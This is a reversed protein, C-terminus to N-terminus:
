ENAPAPVDQGCAGRRGDLTAIQKEVEAMEPSQPPLVSLLKNWLRKAQLPHCTEAEARGLYFLAMPNVPDLAIVQRVTVIFDAPLKGDNSRGLQIQALALRPEVGKPSLQIAHNAADVAKTFEGLVRYSRALRLWGAEDDPHERLRAALGDVMAHIARNQEESGQAALKAAESDPDPPSILPPSPVISTSDFGGVKAQREIDARLHPLWPAGAPSTQELDRWIAVAQASRGIEAEALGLYYRSRFETPDATLARMFCQRAEPVVMGDNAMVISEGFEAWLSGDAAGMRIAQRYADAAQDFHRMAVYLQALAVFGESDPKVKLEAALTAANSALQLAPDDKRAAYPQGKLEPAGLQRYLAASGGFM